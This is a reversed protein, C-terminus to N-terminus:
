SGKWFIYYGRGQFWVKRPSLAGLKRKPGKTTQSYIEDGRRGKWPWGKLESEPPDDVCCVEFYWGDAQGNLASSQRPHSSGTIVRVGQRMPIFNGITAEEGSRWIDYMAPAFALMEAFYVSM